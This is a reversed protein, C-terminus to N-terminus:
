GLWIGYNKRYYEVCMHDAKIRDYGSYVYSSLADVYASETKECLKRPSVRRKSIGRVALHGSLWIDDVTWAVDPIEFVDPGFFEPRVLVGGFGQCIDVIGSRPRTPRRRWPLNRQIGLSLRNMWRFYQSQIYADFDVSAVQLGCITACEDPNEKAAQILTEAWNAQYFEDDDCYIIQIDQGTFEHIAPLVKTAPGFDEDCFRVDIDTPLKPVSYGSFEPRRYKKPVWLIFGDIKATQARFGEIVRDLNHMRSPITTFSVITSTM